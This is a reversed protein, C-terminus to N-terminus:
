ELERYLKGFGLNNFYTEEDNGNDIRCLYNEFSYQFCFSSVWNRLHNVNNKNLTDFVDFFNFFLLLDVRGEDQYFNIYVDKVSSDCISVNTHMSFDAYQDTNFVNFIEDINKVTIEHSAFYSEDAKSYFQELFKLDIDSKNGEFIIEILHKM